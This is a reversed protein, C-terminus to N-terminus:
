RGLMPTNDQGKISLDVGLEHQGSGLEGVRGHCQRCVDNAAVTVDVSERQILPTREHEGVGLYRFGDDHAGLPEAHADGCVDGEDPQELEVHQEEVLADDVAQPDFLEDDRGHAEDDHCVDGDHHEEKQGAPGVVPHPDDKGVLATRKGGGRRAQKVSIGRCVEAFGLGEEVHHRGEDHIEDGVEADHGDGGGDDEGHAGGDEALDTEDDQEKGTEEDHEGGDHADDKDEHYAAGGEVAGLWSEYGGWSPFPTVAAMQDQRSSM